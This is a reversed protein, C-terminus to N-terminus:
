AYGLQAYLYLNLMKLSLMNLNRMNLWGAVELNVADQACGGRCAPVRGFRGGALAIFSSSSPEASGTRNAGSTALLSALGPPGPPSRPGRSEM